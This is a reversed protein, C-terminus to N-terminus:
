SIIENTLLEISEIEKDNDNPMIMSGHRFTIKDFLGDVNIKREAKIVADKFSEAVVYFKAFNVLQVVFLKGKM